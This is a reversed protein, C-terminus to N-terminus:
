LKTCFYQFNNKPIFNEPLNYQCSEAYVIKIKKSNNNTNKKSDKYLSKISYYKSDKNIIINKIKLIKIRFKRNLLIESENEYTNIIKKEIKKENNVSNFFLDSLYIGPVNHEKKIHLILFISNKGSYMNIFNLATHINFTTSIYNNFTFEEDIKNLIEKNKIKYEYAKTMKYFIDMFNNNIENDGINKMGRFLICDSLKIDNYYKNFLYDM